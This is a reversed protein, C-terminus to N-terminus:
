PMYMLSKNNYTLSLTIQYPCQQKDSPLQISGLGFTATVVTWLFFILTLILDSM